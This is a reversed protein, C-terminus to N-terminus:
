PFPAARDGCRRKGELGRRPSMGTGPVGVHRLKAPAEVIPAYADDLHQKPAVDQGNHAAASCWLVRGVLYLPPTSPPAPTVPKLGAPLLLM